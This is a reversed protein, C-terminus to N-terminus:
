CLGIWLCPEALGELNMSLLNCLLIDSGLIQHSNQHASVDSDGGLPHPDGGRREILLLRSERVM